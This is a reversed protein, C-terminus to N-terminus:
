SVYYVSGICFLKDFTVFSSIYSVSDFLNETLLLRLDEETLNPTTLAEDFKAKTKADLGGIEMPSDTKIYRNYLQLAKSKKYKLTTESIAKYEQIDAWCSFSEETFVTKAFVGLAHQALPEDLLVRLELHGTNVSSVLTGDAQFKERAEAVSPLLRWTPKVYRSSPEDMHNSVSTGSGM